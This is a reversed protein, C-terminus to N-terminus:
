FFCKVVSLSEFCRKHILRTLRLFRLCKWPGHNYCDNYYDRDMSIDSTELYMFVFLSSDTLRFLNM